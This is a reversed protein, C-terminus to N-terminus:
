NVDLGSDPQKPAESKDLSEKETTLALLQDLQDNTLGSVDLSTTQNTDIISTAKNNVLNYTELLTKIESPKGSTNVIDTAAKLAALLKASVYNLIEAEVIVGKLRSDEYIGHILAKADASTAEDRAHWKHRSSQNRVHNLTLGTQEAVKRYNKDVAIWINFLAEDTYPKDRTKAVINIEKTKPPM